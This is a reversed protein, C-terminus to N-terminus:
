ADREVLLDAGGNQGGNEACVGSMAKRRTKEDFVSCVNKQFLLKESVAFVVKKIGDRVAGMVNRHKQEGWPQLM